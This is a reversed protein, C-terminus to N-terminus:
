TNIPYSNGGRKIGWIAHKAAISVVAGGSFHFEQASSSTNVLIFVKGNAMQSVTQEAATVSASDSVDIAIGGCDLESTVLGDVQLTGVVRSDGNMQTPGLSLKENAQTRSKVLMANVEVRAGSTHPSITDVSVNASDVNGAELAYLGSISPMNNGPVWSSGGVKIENTAEIIGSILSYLTEIIPGSSGDKFVANGVHIEPTKLVSLQGDALWDALLSLELSKNKQGLNNGPQILLLLDQATLATARPMMSGAIPADPITRNYPM